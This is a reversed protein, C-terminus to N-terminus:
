HGIDYDWYTKMEPEPDYGDSRYQAHDTSVENRQEDKQQEPIGNALGEAMDIILVPNTKHINNALYVARQISRIDELESRLESIESTSAKVPAKDHSSIDKETTHNQKIDPM